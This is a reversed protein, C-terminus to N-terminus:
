QDKSRQFLIDVARQLIRAESHFTLQQVATGSDFWEVIDFEFDHDDTSGGTTKMLYFHVTKNLPSRNKKGTFWYNISGIPKEVQVILGTEEQAERIATQIITEGENPTGKPLSWRTPKIRGCLVIEISQDNLRYVVGGASVLDPTEREISGKNSKKRGNM